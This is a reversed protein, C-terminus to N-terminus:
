GSSVWVINPYQMGVKVNLFLHARNTLIVVGITVCSGLLPNALIIIM